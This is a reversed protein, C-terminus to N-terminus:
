GVAEFQSRNAAGRMGGESMSPLLARRTVQRVGEDRWLRGAQGAHHAHCVQRRPRAIPHEVEAALM